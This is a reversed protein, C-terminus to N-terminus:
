ANITQKVSHSLSQIQEQASQLNADIGTKLDQWASESADSFKDLQDQAQNLKADLDDMRQNVELAIDASAEQGRAKLKQAEATMQKLQAEAKQQYLKKTNPM